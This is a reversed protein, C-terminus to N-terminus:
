VNQVAGADSQLGLNKNFGHMTTQTCTCKIQTDDGSEV